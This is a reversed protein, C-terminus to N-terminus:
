HISPRCIRDSLHSLDVIFLSPGIFTLTNSAGPHLSADGYSVKFYQNITTLRFSADADRGVRMREYDEYLLQMGRSNALDSTPITATRDPQYSLLAVSFSDIQQRVEPAVYVLHIYTLCHTGLEFTMTM